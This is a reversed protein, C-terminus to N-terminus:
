PLGEGDLGFVQARETTGTVVGGVRKTAVGASAFLPRYVGGSSSGLAVRLECTATKTGDFTAEASTVALRLPEDPDRRGDETAIVGEVPGQASAFGIAHSQLDLVVAAGKAEGLDALEGVGSVFSARGHTDTELRLAIEHP